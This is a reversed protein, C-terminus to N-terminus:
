GLNDPQFSANIVQKLIPTKSHGGFILSWHRDYFAFMQTKLPIPRDSSM